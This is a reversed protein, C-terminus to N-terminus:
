KYEIEITNKQKYFIIKNILFHSTKYKVDIPVNNDILLDYVSKIQQYINKEQENNLNNKLLKMKTNLLNREKELAEKSEKYEELTDIGNKYANKIRKVKDNFQSLEYSLIEYETSLSSTERPVVRVKIKSEFIEKLQKCVITELKTIKIAHSIKCKGKSYGSCQYYDFSSICLSKGCNGCKVLGQSWYRIKVTKHQGKKYLQKRDKLLTQTKDWLEQGIIPEHTSKALIVNKNDWKRSFKGTSNWRLMSIYAPNNLIYDINRNEFDCGRHTKVGLDNLYMAIQRMSMEQSAFKEFIFKVYKAEEPVIVLQNDEVKYGFCPCTQLEGRTAKETMGKKVEDSLNLSYYEAMAELMAELIVSFKDDEIQETISIVKIGSERKLMSKYVVSDERSRAFRDFKHVLIVDFPRPKKKSTAIMKMFSPRKDARKGSIGEDAYIHETLIIMNNKKAYEKLAKIQADLSFELQDDTSVRIYAAAFIPM